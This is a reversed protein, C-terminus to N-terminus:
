FLHVGHFDEDFDPWKSDKDSIVSISCPWEINFRKDNYRIGRESERNYQKSVFYLVESNDKLTIFSHAFGEPVYLMKCNEDNLEVGFYQGYTDSQPRIDLIVDYISGKVCRVLKTESFPPLQYHLGRLTGAKFNVSVNSQVFRSSLGHESFETECFARGFFGRNDINKEIEIVFSGKLFTENFIM